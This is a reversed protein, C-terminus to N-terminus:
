APIAIPRLRLQHRRNRRAPRPTDSVKIVQFETLGVRAGLLPATRSLSILIYALCASVGLTAAIMIMAIAIWVTM